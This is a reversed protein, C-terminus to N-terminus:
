SFSCDSTSQLCNIISCKCQAEQLFSMLFYFPKFWECFLPTSLILEKWLKGSPRNCFSYFTLRGYVETQWWTGYYTKGQSIVHLIRSVVTMQQRHESTTFQNSKLVTCKGSKHWLMLWRCNTLEFKYDNFAVTWNQLMYTIFLGIVASCQACISWQCKYNLNAIQHM